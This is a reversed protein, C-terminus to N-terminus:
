PGDSTKLMYLEHVDNNNVILILMGQATNIAMMSRINKDAFFGTKINPIYEFSGEGKGAMFSGIGADARTTEFDTEHNNGALLLDKCADENLDEFLISNITSTQAEHSFPKFTMGNEKDNFFIGSRFETAQYHLAASFGPGLITSMDLNAYESHTSIKEGLQPIQFCVPDKGKVPVLRDGHYEALLIDETGNLDFDGAFIHFPKEDSAKYPYNLGLNGAIIDKQKDDNVDAIILKNWWGTKKSLNQYKETKVLMNADNELVEIGMWEGTVILDTDGDTDIDDWIADTIMGIRTLNPAIQMTEDKFKGSENVLLYSRPPHPYAGPIVRGGVFLDNDGDQDFDSSVVVSGATAIKPLATSSRAFIGKGDNLYLRDQLLPSGQEFEYSGSVVYLDLDKDGDSDFFCAGVDEYLSDMIFDGMVRHRFSGSREGFLLQGSQKHGGGVFIDELGDNNVDAKAIGPGYQSLKHPLLYQKRFDDYTQDAHRSSFESKEFMTKDLSNESNNIEIKGADEFNLYILTDTEVNLLKQIEGCPWIVELKPIRENAGLGFHLINSVASLYGRSNILQRTLISGDEFFLNVITGVGFLNKAPGKLKVQLFHNGTKEIANNRLLTAEEDINNVVIDLDGDNDLDVYTSGNSFTPWADVWETSYDEFTLDGRNKYFYNVMKQQRLMKTYELFDDNNPRRKNARMIQMIERTVDHDIVDRYVGNTIYIDVLGDLDFDALLPSWSWDTTPIGAMYSIESYTGNGNNLQLVNHMYQHGYGKRLMQENKSLSTMAMTTRSRFYDEPKMDLVMLDMLGDNNIDALDSGMSYFATHKILDNRRQSFTGDGNNIFAFDPIEFDNNVYIDLWGDGNYDGVMANLAFGREPFIGAKSSVDTFFGQGDNNYLKDSGRLEITQPDYRISDLDQIKRFDRTVVPSNSVYVDLDGDKDYDFFVSTISRNNDDLGHYEAKEVFSLDGNNVFLLNSLISEEEYWGARCIYIDLLGDHNIDALTVGSYFGDPNEIGSSATIDKFHFNGQNLYVKIGKQTSSFVLDILGDNNLDGAAVGGGNYTYIYNYYHFNESEEIKNNFDLGSASSAIRSFFKASSKETEPSTCSIALVFIFLSIVAISRASILNMVM